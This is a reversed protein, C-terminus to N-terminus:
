TAKLEDPLHPEILGLVIACQVLQATSTARLKFKIRDRHAEVTRPSIGLQRGIDKSTGGLALLKLVECERDTLNHPGDFARLKDKEMVASIM